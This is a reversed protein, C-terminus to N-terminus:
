GASCGIELVIKEPRDVALTEWSTVGLSGLTATAADLWRSRSRGAILKGEPKTELERRPVRNEDMYLPILEHNFRRCWRNKDLIHRFITRLVMREYTILIQEGKADHM